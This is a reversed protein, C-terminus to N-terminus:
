AASAHPVDTVKISTPRAARAAELDTVDARIPTVREELRDIQARMEELQQAHELDRRRLEEIERDRQADAAAQQRRREEKELERAKAARQDQIAWAVAAVASGGGVVLTPIIFPPFLINAAATGVVAVAVAVARTVPNRFKAVFRGGFTGVELEVIELSLNQQNVFYRLLDLDLQGEGHNPLEQDYLVAAAAAEFALQIADFTALVGRLETGDGAVEVVFAGPEDPDLGALAASETALDHFATGARYESLLITSLDVIDQVRRATPM